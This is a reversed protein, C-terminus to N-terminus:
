LHRLIQRLSAMSAIFVLSVGLIILFRLLGPSVFTLTVAAIAIYITIVAVLSAVYSLVFKV